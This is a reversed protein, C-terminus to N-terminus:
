RRKCLANIIHGATGSLAVGVPQKKGISGWVEEKPKPCAMRAIEMQEMKSREMIAKSLTKNVINANVTISKDKGVRVKFVEWDPSPGQWTSYYYDRLTDASKKASSKKDGDGCAAIFLAAAIFLLAARPPM